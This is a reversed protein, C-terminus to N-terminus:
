FSTKVPRFIGSELRREPASAHTRLIDARLSLGSSLASPEGPLNVADQNMRFDMGLMRPQRSPRTLWKKARAYDAAGARFGKAACFACGFYGSEEKDCGRL